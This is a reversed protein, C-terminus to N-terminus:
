IGFPPLRVCVCMTCVCRQMWMSVNICLGFYLTKQDQHPDGLYMTMTLNGTYSCSFGEFWHPKCYTKEKECLNEQDQLGLKGGKSSYELTSIDKKGSRKSGQRWNLWVSTKHLRPAPSETWM